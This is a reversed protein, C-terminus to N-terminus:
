FPADRTMPLHEGRAPEHFLILQCFLFLFVLGLAFDNLFLQYFKAVRMGGKM